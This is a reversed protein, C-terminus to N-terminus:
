YGRSPRAREEGPTLLRRGVRRFEISAAGGRPSARQVLHAFVVGRGVDRIEEAEVQVDEITGFWEEFFSRIAARGEFREGPLDPDASDWVADPSYLGLLADLDGANTADVTREALEVLDPTTSEESMTRRLITSSQRPTAHTTVGEGPM